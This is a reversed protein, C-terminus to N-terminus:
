ILSLSLHETALLSAALFGEAIKIPIVGRELLRKSHQLLAAALIVISITGDGIEDDQSQSLQVILQSIPNETMEMDKLITAGDNTVEINDDKTILIKDM